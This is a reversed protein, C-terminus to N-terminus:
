TPCVTTYLLLVVTTEPEVLRLTKSPSTVLNRLKLILFYQASLDLPFLRNEFFNQKMKESHM